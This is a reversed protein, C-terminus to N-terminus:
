GLLWMVMHQCISYYIGLLYFPFFSPSLMVLAFQFAILPFFDKYCSYLWNGLQCSRMLIFDSFLAQLNLFNRFGFAIQELIKSVIRKLRLHNLFLYYLSTQLFVWCGNCSFNLRNSGRKTNRLSPQLSLATLLCVFSRSMSIIIITIYDMQLPKVSMLSYLYFVNFPFLCVLFFWCNQSCVQNHNGM